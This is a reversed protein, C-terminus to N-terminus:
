DGGDDGGEGEGPSGGLRIAAAAGEPTGPFDAALEELYSEVLDDDMLAAEAANYAAWLLEPRADLSWGSRLAASSASWSEDFEGAEFLSWAREVVSSPRAAASPGPPLGLRAEIRTALDGSDALSRAQLLLTWSSDTGIGPQDALEAIALARTRAGATLSLEALETVADGEFGYLDIRKEAALFRLLLAEEGHVTGISDIYSTLLGLDAARDSALRIWMFGGPRRSLERLDSLAEELMGRGEQLYARRYLAEAGSEGSPDLDAANRYSSLAEGTEGAAEHARGQLLSISAMERNSRYTSLLPELASAAESPRGAEVLAAAVGTLARYYGNGRNFVAAARMSVAAASDPLGASLLTSGRELMVEGRLSDSMRVTALSDLVALAEPSRGDMRLAASLNIRATVFVERDERSVAELAAAADQWRDLEMAALGMGLSARDRLGRDETMIMASAYARMAEEFDSTGSGTLSRRGLLLLADGVLLQADDAWKSDPYFSLVKGAGEIATRLAQEEQASPNDPNAAV